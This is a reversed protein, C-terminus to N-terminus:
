LSYEQIDNSPQPLPYLLGSLGCIFALMAPHLVAGVQEGCMRRFREAEDASQVFKMFVEKAHNRLEADLELQLALVGDRAALAEATAEVLRQQHRAQKVLQATIARHQEEKQSLEEEKKRLADALHTGEAVGRQKEAQGQLEDAQLRVRELLGELDRARTEALHRQQAMEMEAGASQRRAEEVLEQRAAVTEEMQTTARKLDAERQRVRMTLEVMLQRAAELQSAAQAESEEAMRLKEIVEAAEQREEDAKLQEKALRDKLELVEKRAEDVEMQEGALSEIGLGTAHRELRLEERLEQAEKCAEDAVKREQRLEAALVEADQRVQDLLAREASLEEVLRSAEKRARDSRLSEEKLKEELDEVLRRAEAEMEKSVLQQQRM